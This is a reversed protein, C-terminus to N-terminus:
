ATRKGNKIERNKNRFHAVYDDAKDKDNFWVIKIECGRMEYEMEVEYPENESMFCQRVWSFGDLDTVHMVGFYTKKM